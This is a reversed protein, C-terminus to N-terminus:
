LTPVTRLLYAETVARMHNFHGTNTHSCRPFQAMGGLREAGRYFSGRRALRRETSHPLPTWRTNELGLPKREHIHCNHRTALATLFLQDVLVEACPDSTHYCHEVPSEAGAGALFAPGPGAGAIKFNWFGARGRCIKLIKAPNQGPLAM